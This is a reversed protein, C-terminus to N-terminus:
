RIKGEAAPHRHAGGHRERGARRRSALAARRRARSHRGSARGLRRSDRCAPHRRPFGHAEDFRVLGDVLARRAMLQMKPDLTTRVSLGGEYLKKEGFRDALERRVDEAFYGAVYTNPSLARPNVGLPEGKAKEGDQKNVYGDAVMRNIVYNRRELARDQQPVPASREASEAVRRSLVSRRCDTRAGVQRLLQTSGSRSRLQRSRSLDRESVTRPDEREFLRIRDPVLDASRPDKRDYSRENGVIFNKAVQQTITSAGQVKKGGQVLISVARVIGEPDIGNHTYFNKDEAAIFAQKVLPPIAASPLYMRRERAYEALISGDSAHVRTMVPPEYNRLAETGPLDKNYTYVVGAAIVAGVVFVIAGTAFIFGLFRGILRM